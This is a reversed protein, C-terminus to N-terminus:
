VIKKMFKKVTIFKQRKSISYVMFFENLKVVCPITIATVVCLDSDTAELPTRVQVLDGKRFESL